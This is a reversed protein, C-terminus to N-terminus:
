KESWILKVWPSSIKINSGEVRGFGFDFAINTILSQFFAWRSVKNSKECWTLKVLKTDLIQCTVGSHTGSGFDSARNTNLRSFYNWTQRELGTSQSVKRHRLLGRLIEGSLWIRTSRLHPIIRMFVNRRKQLECTPSVFNATRGGTNKPHSPFPLWLGLLRQVNHFNYKSRRWDPEYNLWCFSALFIGFDMRNLSAWTKSELHIKWNERFGARFIRDRCKMPTLQVFLIEYTRYSPLTIRVLVGVCTDM